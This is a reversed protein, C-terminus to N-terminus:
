IVPCGESTESHVDTILFTVVGIVETEDLAEGEISEGDATIFARGLIKAFESRRKSRILVTNGQKAKRALDVVAYGSDTVIARTNAGLRCLTNIDLRREVYDTASFRPYVAPFLPQVDTPSRQCWLRVVACLAPSQGPLREGPQSLPASCKRSAHRADRCVPDSIRSPSSACGDGRHRASPRISEGSEASHRPAPLSGANGLAPDSGCLPAPPLRM